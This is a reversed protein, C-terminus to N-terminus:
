SEEPFLVSVTFGDPSNGGEPYRNAFRVRFGHLTAIKMIISFGLGCGQEKQGPPRFFREGIHPLCEPDIGRGDNEVRFEHRNLLIHVTGNEPCYKVANDLINRLLVSILWDDGKIGSPFDTATRCLRIHRASAAPALSDVAEDILTNWDLPRLKRPFVPSGEEGNGDLQDVRSLTLLQEVMRACRDISALIHSVARKREEPTEALALLEAQVRLGTLPTRLEHAADAVFGRERELMAAMRSFLSNLACILPRVELPVERTELPRTDLPSRQQLSATTKRLPALERNLLWFLGILPIPLLLLWPLFQKNLMDLAMRNRYNVEQGVAVVRSADQSTLWVLRWLKPRPEIMVDVFGETRGDYVFHKGKEGDDLLRNGSADFVAFGLSNKDQEGRAERSVGPLVEGNRPLRPVMSGLDATLLTKAFVLQQTDFFKDIYKRNEYWSFLAILLWVCILFLTFCVSLRLRLSWDSFPSGTLQKWATSWTKRLRSSHQKM